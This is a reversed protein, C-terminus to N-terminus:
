STGRGMRGRANGEERRRPGREQSSAGGTRGKTKKVEERGEPGGGEGEDQDAGRRM